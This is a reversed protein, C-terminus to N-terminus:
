EVYARLYRSRSPHRLARLAKAEWQRVRETSKRETAALEALTFDVAYGARSSLGFRHRLVRELRPPLTAIMALLDKLCLQRLHAELPDPRGDVVTDRLQTDPEEADEVVADIDLIEGACTRKRTRTKQKTVWCMQEMCLVAFTSWAARDADHTQAARFIGFMADSFAQDYRADNEAIRLRTRIFWRAFAPATSMREEVTARTPYKSSGREPAPTSRKPADDFSPWPNIELEMDFM